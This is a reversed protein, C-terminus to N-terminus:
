GDNSDSRIKLILEERTLGFTDLTYYGPVVTGKDYMVVAKDTGYMLAGLEYVGGEVVMRETRVATLKIM